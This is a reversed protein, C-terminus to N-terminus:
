GYSVIVDAAVEPLNLPLGLSCDADSCDVIVATGTVNATARADAEYLQAQKVREDCTATDDVGECIVTRNQAVVLAAIPIDTANLPPDDFVGRSSVPAEKAQQVILNAFANQTCWTKAQLYPARYEPEREPWAYGESPPIFISILGLPVGLGRIINFLFQRGGLSVERFAAAEEATQDNM